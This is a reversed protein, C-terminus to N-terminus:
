ENTLRINRIIKEIKKSFSLSQSGLLENSSYHHNSINSAMSYRTNAVMSNFALSIEIKYEEIPSLDTFARLATSKRMQEVELLFKSWSIEIAMLQQKSIEDILSDKTITPELQRLFTHNDHIAYILLDGVFSRVSEYMIAFPGIAKIRTSLFWPDTQSVSFNINDQVDYHNGSFYNHKRSSHRHSSSNNSIIGNYSM